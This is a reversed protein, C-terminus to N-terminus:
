IKVAMYMYYKSSFNIYTQLCKFALEQPLMEMQAKESNSPKELDRPLFM